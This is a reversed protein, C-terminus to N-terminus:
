GNKSAEVAKLDGDAQRRNDAALRTEELSLKRPDVEGKRVIEAVEAKSYREETKGVGSTLAASLEEGYAKAITRTKLETVWVSSADGEQYGNQPRRPWDGPAFGENVEGHDGPMSQRMDEKRGCDRREDVDPWM